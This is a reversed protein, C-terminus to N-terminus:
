VSKKRLIVPEKWVLKGKFYSEIITRLADNIKSKGTEDKVQDKQHVTMSVGVRVQNALTKSSTAQAMTEGHGIRKAVGRVQVSSVKNKLAWRYLQIAQSSKLAFTRRAREIELVVTPSLVGKHNPVGPAVLKNRFEQPVREAAIMWDDLSQESHGTEAAIKSMPMNEKERLRWVLMGFEFESPDERQSNEVMNILAPHVKADAKFIVAMCKDWKLINKMADFRRFGALLNFEKKNPKEQLIIPQLLGLSKISGALEKRKASRLDIRSSNEGVKIKNFNVEKFYM